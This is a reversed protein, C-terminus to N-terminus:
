DADHTSAVTLDGLWAELDRGIKDTPVTATKSTRLHRPPEPLARQAWHKGSGAERWQIVATMQAEEKATAAQQRSADPSRGKRQVAGPNRKPEPVTDLGSHRGVIYTSVKTLTHECVRTSAAIRAIASGRRRSIRRKTHVDSSAAPSIALWKSTVRGAIECCRRTNFSAPRTLSRRLPVLRRYRARGSLMASSRAY